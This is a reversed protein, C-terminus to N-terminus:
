RDVLVDHPPAGGECPRFEGEIEARYDYESAGAELVVWYGNTLVQTYSVGPEPCDLAPSSWVVQQARIVVVSEVAVSAREAADAVLPDLKEDPVMGVEPEFPASTTVTVQRDITTSTTDSSAEDADACAAAALVALALILPRMISM